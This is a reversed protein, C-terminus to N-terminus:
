FSCTSAQQSAKANPWLARGALVTEYLDLRGCGLDSGIPKAHCVAWSAESYSAKNQMGVLLAVAGSVFPTSFSTGWGAAFSGWPYTTIIGEGPAAAWVLTAGYNSFRSRADDNGTSAIGMVNDLAAPYVLVAGGDNGASSVAVLGQQTAFDLARKLEQSSAPRSFSMNLVKAGSRAAYYVARIINSTYGSGDPGFAKLPMIKATPAVLHVIGAVMTGHGFAAYDPNDLVAASAQDLVAASAQNVWYVGDLVAASAQALDATENGGGVEHVFDYGGTLLPKLVPHEPDIGTDIVAVVGGGTVGLACHTDRLRVTDAAPQALYAQWVTAGYYSVPTRNQLQDLVAASAQDGQFSQAQAVPVPLDIEAGEVGDMSRLDSLATDTDIGNFPGYPGEILYVKGHKKEGPLTDLCRTIKCGVLACLNTIKDWGDVQGKTRVIIRDADTLAGATSTAAGACCALLALCVLRGARMVDGGGRAGHRM